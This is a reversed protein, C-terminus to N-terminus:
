GLLRPACAVDAAAGGPAAQAEWAAGACPAAQANAAVAAAGASAATLAPSLEVAADASQEVAWQLAGPSVHRARKRGMPAAAKALGSTLARKRAASITIAVPAAPAYRLWEDSEAM